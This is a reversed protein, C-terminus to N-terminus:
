NCMRVVCCMLRYVEDYFLQSFCKHLMEAVRIGCRINKTSFLDQLFNKNNDTRKKKSDKQKFHLLFNM